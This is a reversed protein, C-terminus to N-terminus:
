AQRNNSDDSDKYDHKRRRFIFILSIPVTLLLIVFLARQEQCFAALRDMKERNFFIVAGVAASAAAAALVAGAAADKARKIGDSFEKTVTDCIAELATNVCELAIVVGCCILVAAWQLRSLSVILGLIVTYAGFCLHFRMNRQTRVTDTFGRGAYVFSKFFSKLNEIKFM